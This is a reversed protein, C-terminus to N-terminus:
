IVHAYSCFCEQYISVDVGVDCLFAIAGYHQPLVSKEDMLVEWVMRTVRCQINNTM